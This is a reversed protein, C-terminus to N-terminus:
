ETSKDKKYIQRFKGPSMQYTKKFLKNFYNGDRIGVQEGIQGVPLDTQTLLTEAMSLRYNNLYSVPSTGFAAKFVAFLRPESLNAVAALTAVTIPESYHREIYNQVRRTPSQTAKEKPEAVDLLIKAIGYTHRYRDFINDACFLGDFERNMEEKRQEPLTAPFSYLDEMTYRGNVSLTFFVWRARMRGSSPDTHHVITQLEQAPAIFFGGDGTNQLPNSGAAFDYSGETAQAVTLTPLIKRHCVNELDNAEFQGTRLQEIHIETINM